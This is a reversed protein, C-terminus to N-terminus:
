HHQENEFYLIPIDKSLIFSFEQCKLIKCNLEAIEVILLQGIIDLQAQSKGISFVKTTPGSFIGKTKILSSAEM